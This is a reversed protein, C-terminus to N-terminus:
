RIAKGYYDRTCPESITTLVLQRAAQRSIGLVGAIETYTAGQRAAHSVAQRYAERAQEKNQAALRAELLSAHLRSSARDYAHTTTM